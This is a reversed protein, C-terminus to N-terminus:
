SFSPKKHTSFLAVFLVLLVYKPLSTLLTTNDINASFTNVAFYLHLPLFPTLLIFYSYAKDKLYLSKSILLFVLLLALLPLGLTVIDVMSLAFNPSLDYLASLVETPIAIASGYGIVPISLYAFLCGFIFLLLVNYKM